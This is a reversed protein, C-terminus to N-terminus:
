LPRHAEPQGRHWGPRHAHGQLGGAGAPCLRAGVPGAAARGRRRPQLRRRQTAAPRLHLPQGHFGYQRRHYRFLPEAPGPASIRRRIGTRSPSSASGSGRPRWCDGSSPWALPPIIWMPMARSSSSMAPMGAWCTWRRGPCPCNRRRASNTPGISPTPFSTAPLKCPPSRSVSLLPVISSAPPVPCPGWGTM